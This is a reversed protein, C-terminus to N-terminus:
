VTEIALRRSARSSSPRRLNWLAYSKSYLSVPSLRLFPLRTISPCWTITSFTPNRTTYILAFDPLSRNGGAWHLPFVQALFPPFGALEREESFAAKPREEQDLEEAREVAVDHLVREHDEDGVLRRM